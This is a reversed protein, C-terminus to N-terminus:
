PLALSRYYLKAVAKAQTFCINKQFKGYRWNKDQTFPILGKTQNWYLGFVCHLSFTVFCVIWWYKLLSKFMALKIKTVFDPQLIFRNKIKKSTKERERISKNRSIVISERKRQKLLVTWAWWARRLAQSATMWSWPILRLKPQKKDGWVQPSLILEGSLVRESKDNSILKNACSFSM